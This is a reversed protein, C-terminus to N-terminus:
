QLRDRNEYFHYEPLFVQKCVKIKPLEFKVRRGRPENLAAEEERLANLELMEKDRQKREEDRQMFDFINISDMNLNTLDEPAKIQEELKENM